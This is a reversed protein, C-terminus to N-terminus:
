PGGAPLLVTESDERQFSSLRLTGGSPPPCYKIGGALLLVNLSRGSSPLCDKGVGVGVRAPVLVTKSVEWQFSSLRLTRGSSPPCQHTRKTRRACYM